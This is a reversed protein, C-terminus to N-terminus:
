FGEAPTRGPPLSKVVAVFRYIASFLSIYFGPLGDRFGQRFLYFEFFTKIPRAMGQLIFGNKWPKQRRLDKLIVAEADTYRNFKALYEKLNAVARHELYCSLKGTTGKVLLREHVPTTEFGAQGKKFLRQQWDPWWCHMFRDGYYNRRLIQYASHKPGQHLTRNIEEALGATVVEDADLSLIWEGRCRDFAWNKQPGYGQWPHHLVKAGLSRALEPTRDTSGSDVVLIEDAWAVSAICRQIYTEENQSIIVVSLKL